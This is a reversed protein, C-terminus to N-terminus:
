VGMFCRGYLRYSGYDGADLARELARLEGDNTKLDPFYARRLACTVVFADKHINEDLSVFRSLNVKVDTLFADYLKRDAKIGLEKADRLVSQTVYLADLTKLSNKHTFSISAEHRRYLYVLADTTVIRKARPHLLYVCITDEFWYNEPFCVRAFLESRFVKGCLYGFLDAAAANKNRKHQLRTTRGAADFASFSGEVIDADAAFAEELLVDLAGEALMDDGDVFMLYPACIERLAANRAGSFGKNEQHIVRVSPEKAYKDLIRPTADASGDDVVTVLVRYHAKQRLISDMCAAIYAEENYAPVIIQLDFRFPKKM